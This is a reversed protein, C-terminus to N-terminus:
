EAAMIYLFVIIYLKLNLNEESYIKGCYAFNQLRKKINKKKQRYFFCAIFQTNKHLKYLNYWLYRDEEQPCSIRFIYFIAVSM